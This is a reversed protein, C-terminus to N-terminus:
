LRGEVAGGCAVTRWKEVPCSMAGETGGLWGAEVTCWVGGDWVGVTWVSDDSEGLRVLTWM